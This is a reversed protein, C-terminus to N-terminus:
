VCCSGLTRVPLNLLEAGWYSAHVGVLVRQDRPRGATTREDICSALWCAALAHRRGPQAGNTHPPTQLMNMVRVYPLFAALRPRTKTDLSPPDVNKDRYIQNNRQTRHLFAARSWLIHFVLALESKEQESSGESPLSVVDVAFYAFTCIYKTHSLDKAWLSLPTDPAKTTDEFGKLRKFRGLQM